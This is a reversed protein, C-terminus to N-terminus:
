AVMRLRGSRDVGVVPEMHGNVREIVEGGVMGEDGLSQIQRVQGAMVFRLM